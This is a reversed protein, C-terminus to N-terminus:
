ADAMEQDQFADEVVMGDRMHIVEDGLATADDHDHTILVMPVQLQQQLFRLEERMRQRLAGDLAAFPEDLLLARPKAILARALATRQRQGGSLESPMQHAVAELHFAELWYRVEASDANRQPNRWGHTLGFAINQRVNLHPFLAYDQFLYAMKRQQSALNVESASDFLAVGDMRIYGADPPLLGAMAKLTLSKGAGSPGLIAICSNESQLRVQLTFSRKGSQLTKRFDIDFRM